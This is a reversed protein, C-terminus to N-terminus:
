SINILKAESERLMVDTSGIRIHIPGNFSAKRMVKINKGVRFGLAMLRQCLSQEANIADIGSITAFDGSKLNYLMNM